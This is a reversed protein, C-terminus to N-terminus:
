IEFSISMRNKQKNGGTLEFIFKALSLLKIVSSYKSGIDTELLKQKFNMSRVQPDSPFRSTEENICVLQYSV